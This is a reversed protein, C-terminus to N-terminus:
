ASRQPFRLTCLAGGGEANELSITGGLRETIRKSVALGLGSGKVKTTKFPLFLDEQNENELGTGRDRIEVKAERKKDDSSLQVEVLGGRPSADLANLILNLLVQRLGDRDSSVTCTEIESQLQIATGLDKAQPSLFGTTEQLLDVLDFESLRVEIPRAFALLDTVLQELRGAEDVVTKMLEQSKHDKPLDEQVVQTLGKMAGLPNRIEHALTASMSGLAALHKESEERSKLLLFRRLTRTFYFGLGLLTLIAAAIILSNGTTQQTIFDGSAAYVGVEVSWEASSSTQGQVRGWGRGRGLELPVRFTLTESDTEPTGASALRHGDNEILSISAVTAMNREVATEMATQWIEVNSHRGPGRTQQEVAAVVDTGLNRLYEVRLQSLTRYSHFASLGLALCLLILVTWFVGFPFSRNEYPQSSLVETEGIM